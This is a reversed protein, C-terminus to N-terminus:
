SLHKNYTNAAKDDWPAMVTEYVEATLDGTPLRDCAVARLRTLTEAYTAYTAYTARTAPDGRYRDLFRDVAVILPVTGVARPQPIVSVAAVEVTIHCLVDGLRVRRAWPPGCPWSLDTM